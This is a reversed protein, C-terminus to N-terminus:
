KNGLLRNTLVIRLAPPLDDLMHSLFTLPLWNAGLASTFAWEVSASDLGRVVWENGTVYLPDDLSVFDFGVVPAYVGATIGALAAALLLRIMM